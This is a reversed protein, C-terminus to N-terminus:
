RNTRVKRAREARDAQLFNLADRVWNRRQNERRMDEFRQKIQIHATFDYM